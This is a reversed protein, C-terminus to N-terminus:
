RVDRRDFYTWSLAEANRIWKVYFSLNFEILNIRVSYVKLANIFNPFVLLHGVQLTARTGSRRFKNRSSWVPREDDDAAYISQRAYVLAGFYPFKNESYAAAFSFRPTFEPIHQTRLTVACRAM